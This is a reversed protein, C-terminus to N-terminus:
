STFEKELACLYNDALIQTGDENLHVGDYLHDVSIKTNDIFTFNHIKCLGRLANNLEKCREKMYQAKRVIVGGILVNRVNKSRCILGTKIIDNAINVVPTPKDRRTPLDNGGVQIIVTDPEDENLHTPVYDKIHRAKGGHFKQFRATGHDYARNFRHENITKTM